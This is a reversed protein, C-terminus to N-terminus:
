GLAAEGSARMADLPAALGTFMTFQLAAQNVLLDLGGVLVQGRQRAARALPTAGPHYIVDLISPVAGSRGVLADDQATAPITSVVVDGVVPDLLSEVVVLAGAERLAAVSEAAREPSRVQIALEVAGLDLLALGVSTATAGGGLIVAREVAEVGAGAMAAVAGPVDTNDGHVGDGDLILTNVAGARRATESVSSSLELAERKLPMTVSLGRWTADLGALVERLGGAPVRHADYEWALGM